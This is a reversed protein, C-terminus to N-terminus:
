ANVFKEPDEDTRPVYGNAGIRLKAARAYALTMHVVWFSNAEKHASLEDPTFSILFEEDAPAITSFADAVRMLGRRFPILGTRWTKRALIDLRKRWFLLPLCDEDIGLGSSALRAFYESPYSGQKEYNPLRIDLDLSSACAM